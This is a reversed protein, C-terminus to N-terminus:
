FRMITGVHMNNYDYISTIRMYIAIDIILMLIFVHM